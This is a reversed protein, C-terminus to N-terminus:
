KQKAKQAIPAIMAYDKTLKAALADPGLFTPANMRERMIQKVYDSQMAKELVAAIRDIRDRPTGKPAFWWNQLCFDLDYGLEKATPLDPVDPHREGTLYALAKVGGARFSSYEALTIHAVQTHGGKLAKFNAAGGGIQVFRFKSGPSAGEVMLGAMHNVAGLNAGHIIADPRAKADALLEPLGAWPADEMVATVLCSDATAAVPEFDRYGFDMLGAAEGSLLAIHMLLLTYGDAESDKVRRAGISGGAGPVNVIVLPAGLLNEDQIAKQFMRALGDTNGGAGFPVVIKIPKEPFDAVAPGQAALLLAGLALGLTSLMRM